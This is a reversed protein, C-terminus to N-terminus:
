NKWAGSNSTGFAIYWYVGTKMIISMQKTVIRRRETSKCSGQHKVAYPIERLPVAWSFQAVRIKQMVRSHLLLAALFLLLTSFISFGLCTFLRLYYVCIVHKTVSITKQVALQLLSVARMNTACSAVGSWQWDHQQRWWSTLLNDQTERRTCGLCSMLKERGKIQDGLSSHLLVFTLASRRYGYPEGSNEKRVAVFKQVITQSSDAGCKKHFGLPQVVAGPQFLLALGASPGALHCLGQRFWTCQKNCLCSHTLIVLYEDSSTQVPKWNWICM